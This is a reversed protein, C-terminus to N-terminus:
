ISLTKKMLIADDPCLGSFEETQRIVGPTEDRSQAVYGLRAFWADADITLLWLDRINLAAAHQELAVVLLRGFGAQRHGRAVILSRLLGVSEFQELGIMGCVLTGHEAVLALHDVTLDETPLGEDALM